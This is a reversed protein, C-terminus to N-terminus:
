GSECGSGARRGETDLSLAPTYRHLMPQVVWILTQTTVGCLGHSCKVRMGSFWQAIAHGDGLSEDRTDARAARVLADIEEEELGTVRISKILSEFDGPCVWEICAYGPLASHEFQPWPSEAQPYTSM